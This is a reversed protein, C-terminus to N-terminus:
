LIDLFISREENCTCASHYMLATWMYMYASVRGGYFINTQGVLVHLDFPPSYKSRNVIAGLQRVKTNISPDIYFEIFGLGSLTLSTGANVYKM